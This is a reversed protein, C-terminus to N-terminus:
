PDSPAAALCIHPEAAVWQLATLTSGVGVQKEFWEKWRDMQLPTARWRLDDPGPPPLADGTPASPSEAYAALTCCGHVVAHLMWTCCAHLMM